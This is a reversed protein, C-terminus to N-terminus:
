FIDALNFIKVNNQRAAYDFTKYAGGWEREIYCILYDTIDSNYLKSHGAFCCVKKM